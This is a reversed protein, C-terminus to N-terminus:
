DVDVEVAVHEVRDAGVLEVVQELRHRALGLDDAHLDVDLRLVHLARRAGELRKELLGMDVVSCGALRSRGSTSSRSSRRSRALSPPPSSFIALCCSRPLSVARSRRSRSISSPVKKSIPSCPRGWKAWRAISPTSAGASPTTVPQPSTSPRAVQM